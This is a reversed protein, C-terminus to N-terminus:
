RSRTRTAIDGVFTVEILDAGEDIADNAKKHWDRYYIERRKMIEIGKTAAARRVGHALGVLNV